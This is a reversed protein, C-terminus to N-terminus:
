VYLVNRGCLCSVPDSFMKSWVGSNKSYLKHAKQVLYIIIKCLVSLNTTVTSIPHQEVDTLPIFLSNCFCPRRSLVCFLIVTKRLFLALFMFKAYWSLTIHKPKISLFNFTTVIYINVYIYILIYTHICTHQYAHSYTNRVYIKAHTYVYSHISYM